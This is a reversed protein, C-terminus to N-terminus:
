TGIRNRRIIEQQYHSSLKVFHASYGTVKVVLSQHKEPHVVADELEEVTTINFNVHLGGSEFYSTSLAELLAGPDDCTRFFSDDLECQWPAGIHQKQDLALLSAGVETIAFPGRGHQPNCGQALPEAAHRGDPTAGLYPGALAHGMFQFLSPRMPFGKCNVKERLVHAIDAALRKALANAEPHDSGFKPVALLERRLDEAQAFDTRVAAELEALSRKASGYVQEKIALLSDVVNTFGLLNVSTFNYYAGEHRWDTIDRGTELCQESILSTAIEPWVKYQHHYQINKLELLAQAAEEVNKMYLEYFVEFDPPPNEVAERLARLLVQILVIVNKDQDCYEKGVVCYWQCGSYSINWADEPKVGSVVESEYMKDYNLLAPTACKHRAVVECAYQYFDADIDPHWMVGLCSYGGILDYAELCIWSMESTADAGTQDRGGLSFYNGGYKLYLEAVLEIAERRTIRGAALDAEYYPLLLMDLRGYGNGHAIVREALQYFQIWQLAERLTAPPETAVQECVEALDPDGLERAKEAYKRIYAMIARCSVEAAQLYELREPDASWTEQSQLVKELIGRWGRRLGQALDPCTHSQCSGGAGLGKAREGYEDLLEPYQQARAEDLQWHFEGVIREGPHIEPELKSLFFAYDAAWNLPAHEYGERVSPMEDCYPFPMGIGVRCNHDGLCVRETAAAALKGTEPAFSASGKSWQYIGHEVSDMYLNRQGSLALEDRRDILRKMRPETLPREKHM